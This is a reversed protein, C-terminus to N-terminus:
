PRRRERITHLWKELSQIKKPDRRTSPVGPSPTAASDVPYGQEVGDPHAPPSGSRTMRDTDGPIKTESRDTRYAPTVLNMKEELEKLRNRLEVNEPDRESLAKFLSYAEELHGQQFYIEALTRTALRDM